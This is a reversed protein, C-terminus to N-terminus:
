GLVIELILIDSYMQRVLAQLDFSLGIGLMLFSVCEAVVVKLLIEVFEIRLVLDIYLLM